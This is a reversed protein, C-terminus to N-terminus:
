KQAGFGALRPEARSFFGRAYFFFAATTATTTAATQVGFLMIFVM